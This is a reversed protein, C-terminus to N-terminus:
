GLVEPPDGFGKGIKHRLILMFLFAPGFLQWWAAVFPLSFGFGLTLWFDLDLQYWLFRITQISREM